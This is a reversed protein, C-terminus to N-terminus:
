KDIGSLDTLDKFAIKSNVNSHNEISEFYFVVEGQLATGGEDQSGINNVLERTLTISVDSVETLCLSM